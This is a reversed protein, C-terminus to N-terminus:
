DRSVGEIKLIVASDHTHSKVAECKFRWSKRADEVEKQWSEGKQFLAFGATSLHRDAFGLLTDLDALARASLIDANQPPAEEIRQSLVTVNLDLERISTRLFTCKRQDSEILTFRTKPWYERAYVALVIGPFGGGSGIDVWHDCPEGCEAVQLSDLIHRGWIDAQDKKSILNIKPTWKLVLAEFAKLRDLTERSVDLM